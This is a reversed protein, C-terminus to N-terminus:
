SQERDVQLACGGRKFKETISYGARIVYADNWVFM